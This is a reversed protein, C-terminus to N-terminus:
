KAAVEAFEAAVEPPTGTNDDPANAGVKLPPLNYEAASVISMVSPVATGAAATTRTKAINVSM